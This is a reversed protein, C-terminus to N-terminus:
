RQKGPSDLNSAGRNNSAAKRLPPFLKLVQVNKGSRLVVENDGITVLQFGDFKDGAQLTKGSIIAVRRTPSILISQLVPASPAADLAQNKGLGAPPRTPDVLTEASAPLWGFLGALIGALAGAKLMPRNLHEAM